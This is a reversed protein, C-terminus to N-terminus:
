EGRWRFAKRFGKNEAEEITTANFGGNKINQVNDYQQDFPLHYIKTQNGDLDKGFNCKIRPYENDFPIELIKIKLIKAFELATESLKTTTIFIPQFESNFPIDSNQFLTNQFTGKYKNYKDIFYKISTGFLQNIANEKITSTKKWYKCQILLVEKNKQCILDIGLDDFGHKIGHYEVAYGQEEYLHGIYREYEKGISSKSKKRKIYKELALQLIEQNSLKIQEKSPVLIDIKDITEINTDDLSDISINEDIIDEFDPLLSQIQKFQIELELNRKRLIKNEKAFEKQAESCNVNRKFKSYVISQNDILFYFDSYKDTMWSISNFTDDYISKFVKIKEDIEIKQKNIRDENEAIQKNLQAIQENIKKENKAKEENIRKEAKKLSDIKVDIRKEILISKTNFEDIKKELQNKNIIYDTEIKKYKKSWFKM